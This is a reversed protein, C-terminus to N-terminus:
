SDRPSPSTYLLCIRAKVRHMTELKGASELPRLARLVDPPQIEVLAMHGLHPYVLELMWRAKDFTIPALSGRQLQLWAEAITGFTNASDLTRRAKDSKRQASPDIGDAILRRAQERRERAQRLTVAPYSGFSLLREKGGFRYGFRWLKGGTPTVLVFLGSERPLKHPKTAPRASRILTDTLTAM